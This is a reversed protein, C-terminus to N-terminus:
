HSSLVFIPDCYCCSSSLIFVKPAPIASATVKASMLAKHATAKTTAGERRLM